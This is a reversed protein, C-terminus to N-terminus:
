PTLRAVLYGIAAALLVTASAGLAILLGLLSLLLSLDSKTM